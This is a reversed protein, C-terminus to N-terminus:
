ERHGARSGKSRTSQTALEAPWNLMVWIEYHSSGGGPRRVFAFRSGDPLVDYDRQRYWNFNGTFLQTPIGVRVEPTPTFSAAMMRDRSSFVIEKGGRTWLPGQGGETSVQLRPGPGPNARIYVENQGAEDSTYAIWKGDPSIAPSDERAESNLLVTPQGTGDLPLLEVDMRTRNGEITTVLVRGDQSWSHPHMM